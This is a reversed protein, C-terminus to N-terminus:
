EADMFTNVFSMKAMEDAIGRLDPESVEIKTVDKGKTTITYSVYGGPVKAYGVAKLEPAENSAWLDELIHTENNTRIVPCIIGSVPSSGTSVPGASGQTMVQIEPEANKKPRGRPM